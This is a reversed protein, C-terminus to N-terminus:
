GPRLCSWDRRRCKAALSYAPASGQFYPEPQKCAGTTFQPGYARGSAAGPFAQLVMGQSPHQMSQHALCSLMGPLVQRATTVLTAMATRPGAQYVHVCSTQGWLALAQM